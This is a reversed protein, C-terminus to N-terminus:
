CLFCTLSKTAHDITFNLTKDSRIPLSFQFFQRDGSGSGRLTHQPFLWGVNGHKIYNIKLYNSNFPSLFTSLALRSVLSSELYLQM